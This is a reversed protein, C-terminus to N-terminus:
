TLDKAFLVQTRPAIAYGDRLATGFRQSLRAAHQVPARDPDRASLASERMLAGNAKYKVIVRAPSLSEASPAPARRLTMGTPREPAAALAPMACVVLLWLIKAFRNKM